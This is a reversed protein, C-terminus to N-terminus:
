KKKNKALGKFGKKKLTQKIEEDTIPKPMPVPSTKVLEPKIAAIIKGAATTLLLVIAVVYIAELGLLTGIVISVMVVWLGLTTALGMTYWPRRRFLSIFRGGFGVLM